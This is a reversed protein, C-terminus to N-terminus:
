ITKTGAMKCRGEIAAADLRRDHRCIRSSSVVPRGATVASRETMRRQLGHRRPRRRIFFGAKAQAGILAFRPERSRTPADDIRSGVGDGGVV